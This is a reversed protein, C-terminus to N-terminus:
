GLQVPPLEEGRPTMLGIQRQEALKGATWEVRFGFLYGWFPPSLGLRKLRKV